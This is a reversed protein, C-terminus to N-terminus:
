CRDLATTIIFDASSISKLQYAGFYRAGYFKVMGKSTKFGAEEFFSRNGFCINSFTRSLPEKLIM